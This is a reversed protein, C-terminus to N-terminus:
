CALDLLLLDEPRVATWDVWLSSPSSGRLTAPLEGLRQRYHEAAPDYRGAALPAAAACPGRSVPDVPAALHEQRQVWPEAAPQLQPEPSANHVSCGQQAALRAWAALYAEISFNAEECAPLAQAAPASVAPSTPVSLKSLTSASDRYSDWSVLAPRQSAAPSPPGFGGFPAAATVLTDACGHFSPQQPAHVVEVQYQDM